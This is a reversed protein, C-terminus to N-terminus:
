VSLKRYSYRALNDAIDAYSKGALMGGAVFAEQTVEALCIDPMTFQEKEATSAFEFDILVLGALEDQFVDIEATRGAIDHEYRLKHVRAGPAQALAAYEEKTLPITAEHMESSDTGSIITKKTMEYSDGRRRLRLTPHALSAPFYIDVYEKCRTTDLQTPLYKALYTLEYEIM